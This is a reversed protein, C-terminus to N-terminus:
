FPIDDGTDLKTLKVDSKEALYQSFLSSARLSDKEILRVKCIDLAATATVPNVEGIVAMIENSLKM